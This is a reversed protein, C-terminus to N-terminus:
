PPDYLTRNWNERDLYLFYCPQMFIIGIYFYIKKLKRIASISGM